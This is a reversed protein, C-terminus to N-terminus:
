SPGGPIRVSHAWAPADPALEGILGVIVRTRPPQDPWPTVGDTLVIVLEPRPRIEDTASLGAGMNTGGGGVLSVAEAAFIKQTNQVATDCALVTLSRGGIGLVRLLGRVEALVRALHSETMSASTDVVVAVNPVPRILAPLVISDGIPSGNRRSPRSYSYDVAGAVITIGTRVEAALMTRWDVTPELFARAWRELGGSVSGGSNLHARVETAVQQRILTAETEDVASGMDGPLEWERHLGDAGSGCDVVPLQMIPELQEFYTEALEGTPLGFRQPFCGGEPLPLDGLDDNIELDAAINFRRQDIPQIAMESARNSHERLVHHVEHILVAGVTEVSWIKLVAPDVYLRWHRDVGMTGLGPQAIATLAFLATALYPQATAAWLRSAALDVELGVGGFGARDSSVDQSAV